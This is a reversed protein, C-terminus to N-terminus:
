FSGGARRPARNMRGAVPGGLTGVAPIPMAPQNLGQTASGYLLGGPAASSSSPASAPPYARTYPNGMDQYGGVAQLPSIPHELADLSRDLGIARLPASEDYRRQALSLAQNQTGRAASSDRASQWAGLAGLVLEPHKLVYGGISKFIDGVGFGSLGATEGVPQTERLVGPNTGGGMPINTGLGMARNTPAPPGSPLSSLDAPLPFQTPHKKGTGFLKSLKSM